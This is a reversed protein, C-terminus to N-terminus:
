ERRPIDACAINRGASGRRFALSHQGDAIREMSVNLTGDYDVMGGTGITLTGLQAVPETEAGLTACTGRHVHATFDGEGVGMLHVAVDVTSGRDTFTARGSATSEGLPRVAASVATGADGAAVAPTAATDGAVGADQAPACAVLAIALVFSASVSDLHM